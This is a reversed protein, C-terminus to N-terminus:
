WLFLMVAFFVAEYSVKSHDCVLAKLWVSLSESFDKTKNLLDVQPFDVM